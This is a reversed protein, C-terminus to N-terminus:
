WVTVKRQISDQLPEDGAWGADPAGPNWLCRLATGGAGEIHVQSYDM